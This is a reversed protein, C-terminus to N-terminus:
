NRITLVNRNINPNYRSGRAKTQKPPTLWDKINLAGQAMNGDGLDHAGQLALGGWGMPGPIMSMGGLAAGTYDGKSLRSGVDWAGLATGVFPIARAALKKGGKKAAAKTALEAVEDASTLRGATGHPLQVESAGSFGRSIKSGLPNKWSMRDIRAQEPIDRLVFQGGKNGLPTGRTLKSTDQYMRATGIDDLAAGYGKADPQLNKPLFKTIKEGKKGQFNPDFTVNGPLGTVAKNDILGGRLEDRIGRLGRQVAQTGSPASFNKLREALTMGKNQQETELGGRVVGQQQQALQAQKAATDQESFKETGHKGGALDEQGYQKDWRYLDVASGKGAQIDAVKKARMRAKQEALKTQYNPDKSYFDPGEQKTAKSWDGEWYIDGVTHRGSGDPRLHSTFSWSGPQGYHEATLDGGQSLWGMGGSYNMGYAKGTEPNYSGQFWGPLNPGKNTKQKDWYSFNSKDQASWHDSATDIGWRGKGKPDGFWAWGEGPSPGKAM